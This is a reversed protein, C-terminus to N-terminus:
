KYLNEDIGQELTTLPILTLYFFLDESPELDRDQYFTKKYKLGAILCDNKYEYILDYYETLNIEKNRRTKLSIFNNENLNFTSTNEMIHATGIADNEEIFNFNTVFNNLSLNIGFDHYKIDNLINESAFNYEASIFNENEYNISGFLYSNKKNLTTKQPITDEAEDRIVTALKANITNDNLLNDRTYDLGFTLSKGSELSDEIGLRNISFMNNANITRDTNSHNKMDGPNIRFSIKPTLIESNTNTEKIVPYSTNIEFINMLESQPSSKYIADEKAITNVNKFYLNFNSKLGTKSNLFDNSSFNIDNIIRTRLNNTNQLTNNGNSFFNLRGINNSLVSDLRFYPLIFQYRDSQEKNLDEFATFGTDLYFNEKRLNLEIGSSLIDSDKPKIENKLLYNDFIKLYTDKNTKEIYIKLDSNTFSDIDLDIESKAFLHMINKKRNSYKSHFKNVFGIDAILSSNLNVQRYEGQFSSTGSDALTPNFTFDKNEAIVHFYPTNLTSGIIKSKNIKPQLFGSQRKVTPDPHFFKPFYFIPVDYIKLIANNYVLQKKQRDHLIEEAQIVWPPCNENEGCSTFIGKNIKTIQGKKNSSVGKLRPDNKKNDFIDKHIKIETDKAIFDKTDLNVIASSFYFTDSSPKGFNSTILLKEGILDGKNIFYRFNEINYLNFEDRINMKKKSFLEMSNRYLVVDETEFNYKSYISGSTEGESVITQSDIEYSIYESYIKYDKIKDEIFVNQKAKIINKSRNYEFDTATIQIEDKPSLAKSNEKTYIINDNKKYILNNTYIFYNNINDVIKINGTASLINKDKIYEFQDAEIEVGDESTIKGRNIGIFKNGDDVIKIETVDFNFQEASLAKFFSLYVFLFITFKNFKSKM